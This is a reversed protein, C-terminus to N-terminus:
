ETREGYQKILNSYKAGNLALMTHWSFEVIPHQGHDVM